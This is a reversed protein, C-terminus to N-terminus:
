NTAYLRSLRRGRGGAGLKMCNEIGGPEAESIALQGVLVLCPGHMRCRVGSFSTLRVCTAAVRVGAQYDFAICLPVRQMVFRRDVQSPVHM